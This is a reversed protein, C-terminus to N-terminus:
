DACMMLRKEDAQFRDFIHADFQAPLPLLEGADTSRLAWGLLAEYQQATALGGLWIMSGPTAICVVNAVDCPGLCGSITLQVSKHLKHQKWQAKLWDVPVPQHGRDVRGCCCGLCILVQGLTRRKTAIRDKMLLIVGAQNL